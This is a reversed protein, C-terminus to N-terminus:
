KEIFKDTYVSSMKYADFTKSRINDLMDMLARGEVFNLDKNNDIYEGIKEDAFEIQHPSMYTKKLVALMANNIIQMAEDKEVKWQPLLNKLNDTKPKWVNLDSDFDFNNKMMEDFYFYNSAWSILVTDKYINGVEILLPEKIPLDWNNECKVFVDGNVLMNFLLQLQAVHSFYVIQERM